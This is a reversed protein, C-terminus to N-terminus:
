DVDRPGPPRKRGSIMARVLNEGHVVSSHIVGAVHLAVLALLAHALAEHTEELWEEGSFRETVSLWGSLSTVAATFVLAVIMWGGLPNHGIYRPAAGQVLARAYALTQGPPRLFQSFRAYRTGIWGWPVRVALVALVAYGLWEHVAEIAKGELEGTIYAGLVGAVLTWHAVRVFRDWVLM